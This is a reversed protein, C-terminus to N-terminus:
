RNRQVWRRLTNGEPAVIGQKELEDCARKWAATHKGIEVVRSAAEEPVVVGGKEEKSKKLQDCESKWVGAWTEAQTPGEEEALAKAFACQLKRAVIGLENAVIQWAWLAPAPHRLQRLGAETEFVRGAINQADLRRQERGQREPDPRRRQVLHELADAASRVKQPDLPNSRMIQLIWRLWIHRFEDRLWPEDDPLWNPRVPPWGNHRDKKRAPPKSM